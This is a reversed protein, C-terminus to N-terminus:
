KKKSESKVKKKYDESLSELEEISKGSAEAMSFKFFNTLETDSFIDFDSDKSEPYLIKFNEIFIDMGTEVDGPESGLALMKQGSVYLKVQERYSLKKLKFIKKKGTKDAVEIPELEQSINNVSFQKM